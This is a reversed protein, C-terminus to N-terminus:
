KNKTTSVKSSKVGATKSMTGHLRGASGSKTTYPGYTRRAGDTYTVEVTQQSTKTWPMKM